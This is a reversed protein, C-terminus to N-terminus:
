LQCFEKILDSREKFVAADNFRSGNKAAERILKALAVRDAALLALRRGLGSSDHVPVLSGGGMTEILDAAYANEYGVIPTGSTLAELLCRPSEPTVHTFLMLHAERLASLLQPRNALFGPFTVVGSLGLRAIAAEAEGRLKGDGYWVAHLPAGLDRAVAIAQLWELPAKMPDIRGAYVVKIQAAEALSAIKEELRRPRIADEPKTHVDHILRNEALCLPAYARFCDDGHWLGLSCRAIIAAHYRRMLEAIIKAKLRRPLSQGRSVQLLVEHEVRDTHIAYKRGAKAAERAAAAAWDGMLGGIAFQLYTSRAMVGRLLEMTPGYTRVFDRMSYAWPLPMFTMRASHELARTDRWRITTESAAITEPLVPAAVTIQSFHEAWRDLGNCAQEEFLLVEGERRFPVPLVLLMSSDNHTSPESFM